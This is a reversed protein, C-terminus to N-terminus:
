PRFLFPLFGNLQLLRIEDVEDKELMWNEAGRRDNGGEARKKEFLLHHRVFV